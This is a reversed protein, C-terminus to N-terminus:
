LNLPLINETLLPDYVNTSWGFLTGCNNGNWFSNVIGSKNTWNVRNGSITILSCGAVSQGWAYIAINTFSQQKSFIKNNIISINTGGSVAIGYQGPNVLINQSAIQWSGGNDGLMIGGGTVSPGGGRIWNGTVLIPDAPSAYSKYVNIADEPNSHGYINELHNYRVKGTSNNFQVFQAQPMPGQMNLMYNYRVDIGSCNEAYVGSRVNQITDHMIIINSCNVLRVGTNASNQIVNDTIIVNSCNTLTIDNFAKGYIVGSNLGYYSISQARMTLVCLGLLLILSIKKM